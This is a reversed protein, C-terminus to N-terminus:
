AYDQDAQKQVDQTSCFALLIEILTHLTITAASFLQVEPVRLCLWANSLSYEPAARWFVGVFIRSYQFLHWNQKWVSDSLVWTPWIRSKKLDTKLVNQSSKNWIDFNGVYDPTGSSDYSRLEYTGVTAELVALIPWGRLFPETFHGQHKNGIVVTHMEKFYTWSPPSKGSMM